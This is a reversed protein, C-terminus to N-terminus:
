CGAMQWQWHVTDGPGVSMWCSFQVLCMVFLQFDALLSGLYTQTLHGLLRHYDSIKLCMTMITIILAIHPQTFTVCVSIAIAVTAHQWFDWKWSSDYLTQSCVRHLGNFDALKCSVCFLFCLPECYASFSALILLTISLFVVSRSIM